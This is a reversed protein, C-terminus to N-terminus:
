LRGTAARRVRLGCRRGDRAVCVPGSARPEPGESLLDRHARDLRGVRSLAGGGAPQQRHDPPDVDGAAHVGGGLEPDGVEQGVTRPARVLERRDGPHMLEREIPDQPHEGGEAHELLVLGAPEAERNHALAQLAPRAGPHSGPGYEHLRHAPHSREGVNELRDSGALGAALDLVGTLFQEIEHRPVGLHGRDELCRHRLARSGVRRADRVGVVEGVHSRDDIEAATVARQDDLDQATVM